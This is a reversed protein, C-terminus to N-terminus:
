CRSRLRQSESVTVCYIEGNLDDWKYCKAIDTKAFLYLSCTHFSKFVVFCQLRSDICTHDQVHLSPLRFLNLLNSLNMPLLYFVPGSLLTGQREIYTEKVERWYNRMLHMKFMPKNNFRVQNDNWMHELINRIDLKWFHSYCNPM